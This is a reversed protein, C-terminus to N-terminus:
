GGEMLRRLEDDTPPPGALHWYYAAPKGDRRPRAVGEIFGAAELARLHPLVHRADFFFAQRVVHTADTCGPWCSQGFANYGHGAM